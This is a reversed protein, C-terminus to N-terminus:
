RWRLTIGGDIYQQVTLSVGGNAQAAGLKKIIVTLETETTESLSGVEGAKKWCLEIPSYVATHLLRYDRIRTLLRGLAVTEGRLIVPRNPGQALFEIPIEPNESDEIVLIDDDYQESSLHAIEDLIFELGRSNIQAQLHAEPHPMPAAPIFLVESFSPVHGGESLGPATIRAMRSEAFIDRLAYTKRLHRALDKEGQEVENPDKRRLKQRIQGCSCGWASTSTNLAFSCATDQGRLDDAGLRQRSGDLDLDDYQEDKHSRKRGLVSTTIFIPQKPLDEERHEEVLTDNDWATFSNASSTVTKENKRAGVRELVVTIIDDASTGKKLLESIDYGDDELLLLRQDNSVKQKWTSRSMEKDLSWQKKEIVKRAKVRWDAPRPALERAGVGTDTQQEASQPAAAVRTDEETTKSMTQLVTVHEPGDLRIPPQKYGARRTRYTYIKKVEELTHNPSLSAMFKAEEIDEPSLEQHQHADRGLKEVPGSQVAHLFQEAPRRARISKTPKPAIRRTKIIPHAPYLPSADKSATPKSLTSDM